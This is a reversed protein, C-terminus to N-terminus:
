RGRVFLFAGCALELYGHFSALSLYLQRTRHVDILSAGLVGLALLVTLGLWVPRLDRTLSRLSMRFSLTGEGRIEEQPIWALWVSYHIAQLMVFTLGLGLATRQPMWAPWASVMEDVFRAAGPGAFHAVPLAWGSICFAVALGLLALGPLIFGRHRRFLLLWLGIAVLNHLHAFLLRALSPRALAAIMSALIVPGLGLARRIGVASRSAAVGFCVGAFAWAWGLGVETTAFPWRGPFLGELGRLAFLAACGAVLTATWRRPLDRRLALYRVDSAVHAVGFLAPGVVFLIGPAGLTLAVAVGVGVLAQARIRQDRQTLLPRAIASRSLGVLLARRVRDLPIAARELSLVGSPM